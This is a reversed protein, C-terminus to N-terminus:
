VCVCVCVCVCMYTHIYIYMCLHWRASEAVTDKAARALELACRAPRQRHNSPAPLERILLCTDEEEYSICTDEEAYSMSARWHAAQRARSATM